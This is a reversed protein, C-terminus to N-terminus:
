FKGQKEANRAIALADLSLSLEVDNNGATDKTASTASKTDRGSSRPIPKSIPTIVLSPSKICDSSVPSSGTYEESTDQIIICPNSQTVFSVLSSQKPTPSKQKSTM